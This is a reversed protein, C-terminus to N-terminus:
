VHSNRVVTNDILRAARSKYAGAICIEESTETLEELTEGDCLELYEWNPDKMAEEKLQNFKEIAIARNNQEFLYGSAKITKPLVLAKEREPPTLFQNRSSLALGDQARIIPCAELQTDIALDKVMKKIVLFQQYDKQGFYAIQPNILVFLRYVVTTVGQFHTPRSEGCLKQTLGTVKIETSFGKPYIDELKEPAFIIIEHDKFQRQLKMELGHVEECDKYLTRPYNSLDEKPGFQKPNVFISVFTVKNIKFSQEILSIHGKHLNGMTPVFGIDKKSIKNRTEQLEQLTKVIKM